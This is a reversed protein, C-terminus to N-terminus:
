CAEQDGEQEAEEREKREQELRLLVLRRADYEHRPKGTCAAPAGTGANPPFVPSGCERRTEDAGDVMDFCVGIPRDNPDATASRLRNRLLRAAEALSPSEWWKAIQESQRNLWGVVDDVDPKPLHAYGLHTALAGAWQALERLVSPTDNASEAHVKGDRAKWNSPATRGSRPDRLVVVDLRLPPKSGPKGGGGRDYRGPEMAPAATLQHYRDAVELLDDGLRDSCKQCLVWGDTLVRRCRRNGCRNGEDTSRAKIESKTPVMRDAEWWGHPPDAM